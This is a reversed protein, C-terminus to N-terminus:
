FIEFTGGLYKGSFTPLCQLSMGQDAETKVTTEQGNERRRVIESEIVIETANEIKIGIVIENERGKRRRRVSVNKIVNGKGNEGKENVNESEKEDSKIM